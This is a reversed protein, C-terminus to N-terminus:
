EYLCTPTQASLSGPINPRIRGPPKAGVDEAMKRYLRALTRAPIQGQLGTTTKATMSGPMMPSIRVPPKAELLQPNQRYLYIALGWIHIATETPLGHPLM